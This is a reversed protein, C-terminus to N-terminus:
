QNYRPSQMRRRTRLREGERQVNDAQGAESQLYAEWSAYGAPPPGTPTAAEESQDSACGMLGICGVIVGITLWAFRDTWLARLKM